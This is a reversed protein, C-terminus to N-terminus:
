FFIPLPFKEPYKVRFRYWYKMLRSLVKRDVELNYDMLFDTIAEQIKLGYEPNSFRAVMYVTFANRFQNEFYRRISEQGAESIYCRYLDNIYLERGATRNYYPRADSDLLEITIYESRDDLPKWDNPLLELNQRVIAWLNTRKDIKLYDSGQFYIMWQRIMRGVKIDVSNKAKM